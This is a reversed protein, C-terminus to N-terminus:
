ALQGWKLGTVPGNKDRHQCITQRILRCGEASTGPQRVLLNEAVYGRAVGDQAVLLWPSNAAGAVVSVAQNRALQGVIAANTTPGARLNANVNPIFSGARIDFQDIPQVTSPFRLGALGTTSIPTASGSSGTEPNSWQQTRNESAAKALAAEARRRDNIQLKCGIWSGAAAGLAGGVVTGVARNGGIVRNGLLGGVAGGAVAGITQKSGSAPCGFIGPSANSIAPLDSAAGAGAAKKIAAEPLGTQAYSAQAVCLSLVIALFPKASNLM